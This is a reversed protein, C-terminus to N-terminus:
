RPPLYTFDQPLPPLARVLQPDRYWVRQRRVGAAIVGAALVMPLGIGAHQEIAASGAALVGVPKISPTTAAQATRPAFAVSASAIVAASVLVSRLFIM